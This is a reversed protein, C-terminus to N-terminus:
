LRYSCAISKVATIVRALVHGHARHTSMIYDNEDLASCAGAAVAEEGMSVHGTGAIYGEEFYRPLSTEFIRIAVMRRYMDLLNEKTLKM